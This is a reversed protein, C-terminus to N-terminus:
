LVYWRWLLRYCELPYDCNEVKTVHPM